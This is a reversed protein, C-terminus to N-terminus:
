AICYFWVLVNNPQLTPLISCTLLFVTCPVLGDVWTLLSCSLLVPLAEPISGLFMHGSSQCLIPWASLLLLLVVAHVCGSPTLLGAVNTVPSCRVGPLCASPHVLWQRPPRLAPALQVSASSVCGLHWPVGLPVSHVLSTFYLLSLLLYCRTRALSCLSPSPSLQACISVHEGFSPSLSTYHTTSCPM